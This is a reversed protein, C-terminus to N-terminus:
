KFDHTRCVSYISSSQEPQNVISMNPTNVNMAETDFLKEQTECLENELYKIRQNQKSLKACTTKKEHDNADNTKRTIKNVYKIKGRYRKNNKNSKNIRERGDVMVANEKQEVILNKKRPM